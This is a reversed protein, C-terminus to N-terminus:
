MIMSPSWWRGQFSPSFCSLRSTKMPRSSLVSLSCRLKGGCAVVLSSCAVTGESLAVVFGDETKDIRQVATALRLEAGHREM